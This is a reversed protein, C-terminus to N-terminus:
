PTTTLLPFERYLTLIGVRQLLGAKGCLNAIQSRDYRTFVGGGLIAGAVQPARVLNVGLLRTQLHGQEQKNEKLADLLFSTAPQIMNQSMFIDVVREVDILPVSEDNALQTAFKAGKEPNTRMVRQLLGVYDPTYGVKKSYLVIKETQGAEAFCAIV